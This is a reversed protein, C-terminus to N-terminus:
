EYLWRQDLIPTEIKNKDLLYRNIAYVIGDPGSKVNRTNNFSSRDGYYGSIQTAIYALSKGTSLLENIMSALSESWARINAGTKGIIIQVRICEGTEDDEIFVAFMKGDPTLVEVSIVPYAVNYEM